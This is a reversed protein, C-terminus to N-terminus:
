GIDCHRDPLGHRLGTDREFRVARQRHWPPCERRVSVASLRPFRVTAHESFDVRDLRRDAAHVAWRQVTHLSVCLHAGKVSVQSM